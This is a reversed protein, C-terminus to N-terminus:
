KLYYLKTEAERRLVLGLLKRGCAWVWKKLEDGVIHHEKRNIKQKLASRQLAGPGVNFTFSALADFQNQNLFIEINRLIAREILILDNHLLDEAEELTIESFNENQKIVHGFGITKVGAPCNYAQACFGEFQKILDIGNQSVKMNKGRLNVLQEKGM